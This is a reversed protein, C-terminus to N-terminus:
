QNEKQQNSSRRNLEFQIIRKVKKSGKTKLNGICWLLYGKPVDRIPKGSHKGFPMVFNRAKAEDSGPEGPKPGRTSHKGNWRAVDLVEDRQCNVVKMFEATRDITSSSMIRVM